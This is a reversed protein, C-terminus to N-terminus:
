SAASNRSKNFIDSAQQKLLSDFEEMGLVKADHNTLVEMVRKRVAKSVKAERFSAGMQEHWMLKLGDKPNGQLARLCALRSKSGLMYFISFLPGTLIHTTKNKGKQVDGTCDM